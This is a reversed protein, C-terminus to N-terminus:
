GVATGQWLQWKQGETRAIALSGQLDTRLAVTGSAELTELLSQTPHGYRNESGVSVIGYTARLKRYLDASQDASGHHSVKVVDVSTIAPHHLLQNQADEGLDGLFLASLEPADIRIVVSSDNTSSTRSDDKPWLVQWAVDGLSGRMSKHSIYTKVSHDFLEAEIIRNEAPKSTTPAPSIIAANALHAVAGLGGVHDKDDHTLVLVDIARIDLTDICRQVRDPEIGTDILMVGGSGRVFVADGQGVDCAFIRWHPPISAVIVAPRVVAVALLISISVSVGLIHWGTFHLSKRSSQRASMIALLGLASVFTLLLVGFWGEIWPLQAAPLSSSVRAISSIWWAPFWTLWTAFEGFWPWIPLAICAILGLITAVPAAPAALVNAVVGFTPLSPQLLIIAPQCAIQAAIPVALTMAVWNPLFTNLRNAIPTTFLIIGATALVSLVFGFHQAQWPDICLLIIIAIALAASGVGKRASLLSVMALVSMVAARVVSPEPTVLLVFLGLFLTAALVRLVRRVRFAKGALLILGTIIACNAGSVATLHSLSSVKMASDLEEEVLGTDGVALGPILQAGWGNHSSAAERLTKRLQHTHELLEIPPSSALERVHITYAASFSSPLAKAQGTFTVTSGIKVGDFIHGDAILRVPVSTAKSAEGRGVRLLTANVRADPSEAAVSLPSPPTSTIVATVHVEEGAQVFLESAEDRLQHEVGIRFTLVAILTLTISIIMFLASLFHSHQADNRWKSIGFFVVLWSLVAAAVSYAAIHFAHEAVNLMVASVGWAVLAPLFM